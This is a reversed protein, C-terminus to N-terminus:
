SQDAELTRGGALYIQPVTPTLAENLLIDEYWFVFDDATFPAGDSWKMGERLFLRLSTNDENFESGRVISPIITLDPTLSFLTQDAATALEWGETDPGTAPARLIGGYQGIEDLPELVMPEQGVRETVPPLEGAAVQEALSPAEGEITLTNGTAAEYEAPTQFVQYSESQGQALAALAFGVLLLLKSIVKKM